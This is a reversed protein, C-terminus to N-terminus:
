IWKATFLILLLSGGGLILYIKVKGIDLKDLLHNKVLGIIVYYCIALILGAVNYNFPLFSISWGLEVLLLCSILIYSLSIKFDIKNVWIVQYVLLAAAALIVLVLYGTPWNLFSQLGYVTAAVLFFALWDVGSSINEISFAQYASPMLLYYYVYRLYFYLFLLNLFFLLQIVPKNSLFVSYAILGSSSLAPLILYNWWRSDVTSSRGFQWVVFFLLLLILVASLFILKPKFFYLQGLAFVLSPILLPL